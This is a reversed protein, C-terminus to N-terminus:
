AKSICDSCLGQYNVTSSLIKRKSVWESRPDLPPATLPLPIDEIKGCEECRFHPHNSTDYDFRKQGDPTEIRVIMGQRYMIELNRYVTGLSINPIEGRVFEYVRDASPHSQSKKLAELIIKRQTTMRLNDM